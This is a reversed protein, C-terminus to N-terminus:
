AHLLVVDVSVTTDGHPAPSTSDHVVAVPQTPVFVQLASPLNPAQTHSSPPAPPVPPASAM